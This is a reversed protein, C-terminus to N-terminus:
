LPVYALDDLVLLEIRSYRAVVRSLSRDDRAELLENVLAGATTFRVRRGQMCAEIGLAVALHSKGTGSEGLFIVNEARELFGLTALERVTAAPIGPAEDFNFEHLRKLRPFRAETIRRQRRREGRDDLEAELLAALYALHTRGERAAESALGAARSGITPLRLQRCAQRIEPELLAETGSTATMVGGRLRLRAPRLRRHRPGAPRLPRAGGRRDADAPDGRRRRHGPRAVRCDGPRHCRPRPGARDGPAHRGGPLQPPRPPGRDDGEHRGQRGPPGAAQELARRPSPPLGPT